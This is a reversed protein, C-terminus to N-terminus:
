SIPSAQHTPRSTLRVVFSSTFLLTALLAASLGTRNDTALGVALLTAGLLWGRGILSGTALGALKAPDSAGIALAKRDTWIGIARWALWLLAATVWGLLPLDAVVFVPLALGLLILDINRFLAFM